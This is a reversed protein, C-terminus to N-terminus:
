ATPLAAAEAGPRDNELRRFGSEAPGSGGERLPAASPTSRILDSSTVIQNRKRRVKAAVQEDTEPRWNRVKAKSKSKANNAREIASRYAALAPRLTVNLAQDIDSQEVRQRGNRSAIDIARKAAPKGSHLYGPASIMYDALTRQAPASGTPLIAKAVAGVDRPDLGKPLEVIRVLSTLVDRNWGTRAEVFGLTEFLKTHAVMVIPVGHKALEMTWSVPKPLAYRYDVVPFLYEAHDLVLVLDGGKLVEECRDRLQMAKQSFGAAGGLSDAIARFFGTDDNTAPVVCYRVRGPGAKCVRKAAFSSGIGTGGHLLVVEKLKHADTIEREVIRTVETEAFGASAAQASRREVYSRLISAARHCYWPADRVLDFQPDLCLRQLTADLHTTKSENEQALAGTICRDLIASVSYTKPRRFRVEDPDEAEAQAKAISYCTHARYEKFRVQAEHEGHLIFLRRDAFPLEERLMKVEEGTYAQNPRKGIKAMSATGFQDPYYEVLDTAVKALGGEEHSFSQLAWVLERDAASHLVSVRKAM